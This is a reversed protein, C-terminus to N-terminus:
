IKEIKRNLYWLAKQLDKKLDEKKGCRLIYKLTNGLHFDLNYHEIIKIAEFPNDEGGYHVPHNVEDLGRSFSFLNCYAGAADKLGQFSLQHITDPYEKQYKKYGDQTLFVTINDENGKFYDFLAQSYRFIFNEKNMTKTKNETIKHIGNIKM